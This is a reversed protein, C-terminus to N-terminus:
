TLRMPTTPLRISWISAPVANGPSKRLQRAAPPFRRAYAAYWPEASVALYYSGSPLSTFRYQGEDDTNKQAQLHKVHRGNRIDERFLLMRASQVPEGAEDTVEGSIVGEPALPFVLNETNLNPGVLIATTFQEHQLYMQEVYGKRRARLVYRDAPIQTFVFSGDAGARVTRSLEFASAANVVVYAGAVPAGTMSNVVRGTIRFHARLQRTPRNKSSRQKHRRRYRLERALRM